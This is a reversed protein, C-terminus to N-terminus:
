PWETTRTTGLASAGSEALCVDRCSAGLHRRPRLAAFAAQAIRQEGKPCRRFTELELGLAEAILV